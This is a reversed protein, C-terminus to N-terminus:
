VSSSDKQTVKFYRSINVIFLKIANLQIELTYSFELDVKVFTM